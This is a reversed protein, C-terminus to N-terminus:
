WQRIWPPWDPWPGGWFGPLPPWLVKQGGGFLLKLSPQIHKYKSPLSWVKIMFQRNALFSFLLARKEGSLEQFIAKTWSTSLASASQNRFILWRPACFSGIVYCRLRQTSSARRRGVPPDLPPLGAMAGGFFGPLPALTGKPGGWFEPSSGGTFPGSMITFFSFSLGLSTSATEKEKRALGKLQPLCSDDPM